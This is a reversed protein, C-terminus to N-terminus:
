INRSGIHTDVVQDRADFTIELQAVAPGPAKPAAGITWYWTDGRSQEARGITRRVRNARV